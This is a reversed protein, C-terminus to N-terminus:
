PESTRKLQWLAVPGGAPSIVISRWGTPGERPALAVAAGLRQAELVADALSEVRAYPLWFPRAADCEAVGGAIRGGLDLATYTSPGVRVSEASWGFLRAYFACACARGATNLELHVVPHPAGPPM